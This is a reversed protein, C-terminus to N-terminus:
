EVREKAQTWGRARHIVFVCCVFVWPEAHVSFFVYRCFQKCCGGASFELLYDRSFQIDRGVSPGILWPVSGFQVSRCISPGAFNQGFEVLNLIWQIIFSDSSTIMQFLSGSKELLLELSPCNLVSSLTCIKIITCLHVVTCVVVSAMEMIKFLNVALPNLFEVYM